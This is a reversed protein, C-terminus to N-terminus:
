PVLNADPANGYEPAPRWALRPEGPSLSHRSDPDPSRCTPSVIRTLISESLVIEYLEDRMSESLTEISSEPPSPASM